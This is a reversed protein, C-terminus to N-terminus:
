DDHEGEIEGVDFLLGLVEGARSYCRERMVFRVVSEFDDPDFEGSRRRDYLVRLRLGTARSLDHWTWCFKRPGRGVNPVVQQVNVAYIFLRVYRIVVIRATLWSFIDGGDRARCCWAVM